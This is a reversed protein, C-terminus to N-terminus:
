DLQHSDEMKMLDSLRKVQHEGDVYVVHKENFEKPSDLGAAAALTYLEERLTAIYNTVRYRKEDVVLAQQLKPNTTAVGVPCDNSHCKEAGICGVAIMLGRAVQVADAGMSLAVAVRDPSFMKGSAIIKIRDRLKYKTLVRQAIMLAPKIPLGVSDAMAKYTAGTGGEGGDISIFDPHKKTLAMHMALEEFSDESGVVIKIGVPKGTAERIKVVFDMLSEMDQFEEFRNPSDITKYPEVGRIEAIEPTVKAGEVHGGRIKAGQGLKLEFAKVQPLSAKKKLEEWSFSGDKNRYGFKGPGIQAIIDVGGKLHHPSLGGEGTNMFAKADHLGTSLATIANEGLAGYSMASMGVPSKLKFPEACTHEGIIIADEDRYLWPKIEADVTHEKRAFLTEKDTVYKKTRILEQNDTKLDSIQKAFFANRLYFGPKEFDRKSGLPIITKAYKAAKVISQFDLRSYPKGEDDGDFFYQKLEPSIQEAFYRIRALVPYNRLVSHQSQNKDKRIAVLILIGVIALIVIALALFSGILAIFITLANMREIKGREIISNVIHLMNVGDNVIHLAKSLM